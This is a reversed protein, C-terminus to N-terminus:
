GHHRPSFINTSKLRAISTAIKELQSHYSFTTLVYKMTQIYESKKGDAYKVDGILVGNPTSPKVIQAPVKIYQAVDSLRVENYKSTKIKM